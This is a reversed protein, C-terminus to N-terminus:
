RDVSTIHSLRGMEILSKVKSISIVQQLAVSFIKSFFGLPKLKARHRWDRSIATWCDGNPRASL